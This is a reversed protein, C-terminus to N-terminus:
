KSQPLFNELAWIEPMDTTSLVSYYLAGFTTTGLFQVRAANGEWKDSEFKRHVLVPEGQAKGGAVPIAWLSPAPGNPSFYAHRLTLVYKGDHSWGVPVEDDGSGIATKGKGDSAILYVGHWPDQNNGAVAIYAGDPSVWTSRQRPIVSIPISTVTADSANIWLYSFQKDSRNYHVALIRKSDPSWAELYPLTAGDERAAILIRPGSGDANVVGLQRSNMQYTCFALRKGDPSWVVTGDRADQKAPMRAIVRSTKAILDRVVIERNLYFALFRGDASISGGLWGLKANPGTAIQRLSKGLSNSSAGALRAQAQAVVDAQDGYDKVIRQFTKSADLSGLAQQCEGIRFLAMAALKRDKSNENVVREYLKIAGRFDAETREKALGKQFLDNGSEAAYLFLPCLLSVYLLIRRVANM